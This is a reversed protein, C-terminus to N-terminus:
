TSFIFSLDQVCVYDNIVLFIIVHEIYLFMKWTEWTCLVKRLYKEFNFKRKKSNAWAKLVLDM